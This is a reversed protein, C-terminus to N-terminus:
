GTPGAVADGILKAGLVVCLIAMVVAINRSTWDKLHGLADLAPRGMAVSIEVPAAAGTTAVLSFVVHATARQAGSIGARAVALAGGM